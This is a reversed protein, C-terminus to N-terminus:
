GRPAATMAHKSSITAMAVLVQAAAELATREGSELIELQRANASRWSADIQHVGPGPRVLGAAVLEGMVELLGPVRSRGANGPVLWDSLTDAVVGVKPATRGLCELAAELPWSRAPLTEADAAGVLLGVVSARSLRPRLDHLTAVGNPTKNCAVLEAVEQAKM